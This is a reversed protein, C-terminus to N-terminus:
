NLNEKVEKIFNKVGKILDFTLLVLALLIVVISITAMVIFCIKPIFLIVFIIVVITLLTEIFEKIVKKNKYLKDKIVKRIAKLYGKM